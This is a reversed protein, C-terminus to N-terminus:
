NESSRGGSSEINAITKSSLETEDKLPRGRGNGEEKFSSQNTSQLPKLMDQIELINNEYNMLSMFELQNQGSAIAVLLKSYGYTAMEQYMKVKEKLNMITVPLIYFNIDFNKDELIDEFIAKLANDIWAKFKEVLSFVLAEDSQVSKELAMNGETSFLQPSVGLEGYVDKNWTEFDIPNGSADTMNINKIEGMTTVVQAYDSEEIISQVGKHYAQAEELSFVPEYDKNLPLTQVLLNFLKDEARAKEVGKLQLVDLLAYFSNALLPQLSPNYYFATAFEPTLQIWNDDEMVEKGELRGQERMTWEYVIEAPMKKAMKIRDKDSPISNFFDLNFEIAPSGNVLGSIRCYDLPLKQINGRKGDRRFYVYVVGDIIIDMSLDALTSKLNLTNIFKLQRIIERKVTASSEEGYTVPSIYWSYTPLTALYRVTRAYVGSKQFFFRSLNRLSDINENKFARDLTDKVDSITKFSTERRRLLQKYGHSQQGSSFSYKTVHEKEPEKLFSEFM